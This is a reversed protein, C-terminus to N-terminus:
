KPFGRPQLSSLGNCELRRLLALSWIAGDNTWEVPILCYNETTPDEGQVAYGDTIEASQSTSALPDSSTLLKLNAQSASTPSDSSGLLHLNCHAPLAGSCELRPLLTLNQSASAPSDSSSLLQLNCHVLIVGSCELRLSLTLSWRYNWCKPLGLSPSPKLGPTESLGLCFLLIDDRHFM